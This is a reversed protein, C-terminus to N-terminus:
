YVTPLPTSGAMVPSSASSFTREAIDHADSYFRVPLGTVATM